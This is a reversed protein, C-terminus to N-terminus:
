ESAKVPIQVEYYKDAEPVRPSNYGMTRLGGSAVLNGHQRIFAELSAKAQQVDTLNMEGRMGISVALEPAEDIVSVNGDQGLTGQTISEYMFAMGTMTLGEGATALQIEIPATMPINNKQIHFFLQSFMAMQAKVDDAEVKAVRYAPFQKLEVEGVPTYPPFGAPLKAEMLPEFALRDRVAKLKEGDSDTLTTAEMAAQWREGLEKIMALAGAVDGAALKADVGAVVAARDVTAKYVLEAHGMQAPATAPAVIAVITLLPFIM